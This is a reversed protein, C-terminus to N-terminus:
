QGIYPLVILGVFLNIQYITIIISSVMLFAVGAILGSLIKLNASFFTEVVTYCGQKFYFLLYNVLYRILSIYMCIIVYYSISLLSLGSMM